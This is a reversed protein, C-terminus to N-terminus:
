WLNQPSPGVPHTCSKQASHKLSLFSSGYCENHGSLTMLLCLQLVVFWLTWHGCVRSTAKRFNLRMSYEMRAGRELQSLHQFIALLTQCCTATMSRLPVGNVGPLPTRQSGLAPIVLDWGVTWPKSGWDGSISYQCTDEDDPSLSKQHPRSTLLLIFKRATDAFSVCLISNGSTGRSHRVSSTQQPLWLIFSLGQESNLRSAAGSETPRTRRHKAQGVTTSFDLCILQRQGLLSFIAPAPAPAGTRTYSVM